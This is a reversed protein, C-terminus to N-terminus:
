NFSMSNIKIEGVITVDLRLKIGMIGTVEKRWSSYSLSRHKKKRKAEMGLGNQSALERKEFEFQATCHARVRM